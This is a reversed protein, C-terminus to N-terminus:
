AFVEEVNGSGGEKIDKLRTYLLVSFLSSIAQFVATVLSELAVFWVPEALLLESPAAIANFGIAFLMVLFVVFMLGFILIGAGIIPWRYERTLYASVGLGGFGAGEFLVAPILVAWMAAILLGPIILLMAGALVCLYTVMSLVVLPALCTLAHSICSGIDIPEGRVIQACVLVQIAVQLTGLALSILYFAFDGTVGGTGYLIPTLANISFGIVLSLVCATILLPLYKKSLVSFSAGVLNTVGLPPLQSM